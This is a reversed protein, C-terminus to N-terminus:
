KGYTQFSEANISFFVNFLLFMGEEGNNKGKYERIPIMYKDISKNM